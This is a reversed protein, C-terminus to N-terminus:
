AGRPPGRPIWPPKKHCIRVRSVLGSRYMVKIWGTLIDFNTYKQRSTFFFSGWAYKGGDMTSSNLKTTFRHTWFCNWGFTWSAITCSTYTVYTLTHWRYPLGAAAKMKVTQLGSSPGSSIPPMELSFQALGGWCFPIVTASKHSSPFRTEM